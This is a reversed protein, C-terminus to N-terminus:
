SGPGQARAELAAIQVQFPAAESILQVGLGARTRELVPTM